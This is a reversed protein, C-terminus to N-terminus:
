GALRAAVAAATRRVHHEAQGEHCWRARRRITPDGYLTAAGGELTGANVIAELIRREADSRCVMLAHGLAEQREEALVLRAEQEPEICMIRSVEPDDLDMPTEMRSLAKDPSGHLCAGRARHLERKAHAVANFIVFRKIPVGRTPDWDWVSRWVGLLLEQELDDITLWSPPSWRRALYTALATFQPRAGRAFENFSVRGTLVRHLIPGM